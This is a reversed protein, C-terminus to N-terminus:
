LLGLSVVCEKYDELSLEYCINDTHAAIWKHTLKIASQIAGFPTTSMWFAAIAMTFVDGASITNAEFVPQVAFSHGTLDNVRVRVSNAADTVILSSKLNMDFINQQVFDSQSVRVICQESANLIHKIQKTDLILLIDDGCYEQIELFLKESMFGKNYDSIIVVDPRSQDIATLITSVSFAAVQPDFDFRRIEKTKLLFRSKVTTRVSPRTFPVLTLDSSRLISSLVEGYVDVGVSGICQVNWNPLMSALQWAVYAAGGPTFIPEGCKYKVTHLDSEIISDVEDVPIWCDLMIDGIISVNCM